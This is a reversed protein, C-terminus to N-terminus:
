FCQINSLKSTFRDIENDINVSIANFYKDNLPSEEKKDEM